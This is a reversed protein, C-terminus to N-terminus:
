IVLMCQVNLTTKSESFSDNRNFARCTYVGDDTRNVPDLLLTSNLCRSGEDRLIIRKGYADPVVLKDQKYWNIQLPHIADVDNVACCILSVEDGELLVTHNTTFKVIPHGINYGHSIIFNTPMYLEGYVNVTANDSTVIGDNNIVICRYVGEDEERIVDFKLDPSAINVARHSPSIWSNNSSNYKQWQYYIPGMGVASCSMAIVNLDGSKLAIPVPQTTISPRATFFIIFYSHIYKCNGIAAGYM